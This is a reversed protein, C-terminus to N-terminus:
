DLKHILNMLGRGVPEFINQKSWELLDVEFVITILHNITLLFFYAFALLLFYLFCVISIGIIYKM